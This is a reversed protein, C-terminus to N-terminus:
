KILVGNKDYDTELIVDDINGILLNGFNSIANSFQKGCAVIFRGVQDLEEIM